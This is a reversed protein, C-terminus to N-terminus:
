RTPSPEVIEELREIAAPKELKAMLGARGGILKRVEAVDDPRQVFSLAVWDAGM